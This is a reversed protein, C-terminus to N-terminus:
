EFIIEGEKNLVTTQNREQTIDCTLNNIELVCGPYLKRNAQIRGEAAQSILPELRQLEVGIDAVRQGMSQVTNKIKRLKNAIAESLQEEPGVAQMKELIANLQALESSRQQREQLLERQQEVHEDVPACYLYTKIYADSGLTMAVISKGAHLEGGLVVGKGGSEGLLINEEARLDCHMAYKQVSIDKGAHAGVRNMFPASISGGATLVPEHAAGGDKAPLLESIVGGGIVIDNGAIVSAHDVSGKIFVDGTAEVVAQPAVNGGVMVSGDYHINGSDLNVEKVHLVKDVRVGEAGIVPHGKAAALLLNEDKSCVEAGECNAFALTKGPKATLIKGLVNRGDTGPTAETRRMLQDGEEVVYYDRTEFYDILGDDSLQPLTQEELELLPEFESDRGNEAEQGVAVVQKDVANGEGAEVIAQELTRLKIFEVAVQQKALLTQLQEKNVDAGGSAPTISLLASMKDSSITVNASGNRKEAVSFELPESAEKYGVLEQLVAEHVFLKGFGDRVLQEKLMYFTLPQHSVHPVLTAILENDKLALEVSAFRPKPPSPPEAALPSQQTDGSSPEVQESPCPAQPASDQSPDQSSDQSSSQQPSADTAAAQGAQEQPLSTKSSSVETLQEKPLPEHASSARSPAESTPDLRTDQQRRTDEAGHGDSSNNNKLRTMGEVIASLRGLAM